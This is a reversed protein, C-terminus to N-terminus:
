GKRMRFIIGGEATREVSVLKKMKGNGEKHCEFLQKDDKVKRQAFIGELLQATLGTIGLRAQVQLVHENNSLTVLATICLTIGLGVFLLNAAVLIWIASSRVKTVVRSNRSQAIIAPRPTTQAALPLLFQRSAARSYV